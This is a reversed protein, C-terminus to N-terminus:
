WRRTARGENEREGGRETTSHRDTDWERGLAMAEDMSRERGRRKRDLCSRRFQPQISRRFGWPLAWIERPLCMQARTEIEQKTERFISISISPLNPPVPSPFPSRGFSPPHSPRPFTLLSEKIEFGRNETQGRHYIESAVPYIEAPNIQTAWFCHVGRCPWQLVFNCRPYRSKKRPDRSKLKRHQM